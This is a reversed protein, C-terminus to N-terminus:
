TLDRYRFCGTLHDNVMGVAQMFAYCITSGVFKFGRKELDRSLADSVRTRPPVHRTTPWRNVQPRKGVFRWLYSDFTGFEKQVALFCKANEITSEIKGEHRVIGEDKMLRAVDRPTFRAVHGPEFEAFAKRYNDRKALITAWSLGAQAGELTLFEFLVRDSHVPRGWELDHYKIYAESGLCWPCRPQGDPGKQPLGIIQPAPAAAVAAPAVAKNAPKAVAKKAAKAVAKKAAKAPAKKAVPRKAAVKAPSKSVPKRAVTKKASSSSRSPAKKAPM